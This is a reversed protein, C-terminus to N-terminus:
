PPPRNLPGTQFKKSIMLFFILFIYKHISIMGLRLNELHDHSSPRVCYAHRQGSLTKATSTRRAWQATTGLGSLGVQMKSNNAPRARNAFNADAVPRGAWAWSRRKSSLKSPLFLKMSMLEGAPKM